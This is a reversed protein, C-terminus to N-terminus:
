VSMRWVLRGTPWQMVDHQYIRRRMEHTIAPAVVIYFGVISIIDWPLAAGRDAPLRRARLDHLKGM